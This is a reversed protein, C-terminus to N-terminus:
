HNWQYYVWGFGLVIVAILILNLLFVLLGTLFRLMFNQTIRQPAQLVAM